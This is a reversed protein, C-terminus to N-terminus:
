NLLYKEDGNKITKAIEELEYNTLNFGCFSAIAKVIENPFQLAKEYSIALLPIDCKSIEKILSQYGQLAKNMGEIIDLNISIQNRMSIALIDRFIIIVRPNRMLHCFSTLQSRLAPCKFGWKSYLADRNRCLREFDNYNKEKILVQIEKDEHSNRTIVDGMYLNMNNLIRSIMTTGSRGLGTVAITTLSPTSILGHSNIWYGKNINKELDRSYKEINASSM